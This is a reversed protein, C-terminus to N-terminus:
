KKPVHLTEKPPASSVAATLEALQKQMAAIQEDRKELEKAQREQEAAGKAAMLFHRAKKQLDAASYGVKMGIDNIAADSAGAIQEVTFFKMHRLTEAQARTLIPWEAVPTGVVNEADGRMEKYRAWHLPFRKKDDEIALRDIVNLQNGPTYIKIYDRDKFIPSGEKESDFPQHQAKTYFEVHLLSDPNTPGVYDPNNLDSALM